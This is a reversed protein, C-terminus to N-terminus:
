DKIKTLGAKVKEGEEVLVEDRSINKIVLNVRSGFAIFGIKEGLGVTDEKKVFCYIRRAIAGAIQVVKVERKRSSIIIYNKENRDSKKSFAPFNKGEEYSINRINGRIPSRNVHVDFPRMFISLYISNNEEKIKLIKGDAPSVIEADKIKREPDRFFYLEFFLVLLFVLALLYKSFVVSLLLFFITILFFKLGLKYLKLNFM